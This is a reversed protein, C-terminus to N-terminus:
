RGAQRRREREEDKKILLPLEPTQRPGNRRKDFQKGIWVILLFALIMFVCIGLFGLGIGIPHGDTQDLKASLDAIM